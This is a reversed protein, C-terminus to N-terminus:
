NVLKVRIFKIFISFFDRRLKSLIKLQNKLIHNESLIYFNKKLNKILM